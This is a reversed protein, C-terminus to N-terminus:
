FARAVFIVVPYSLKNKKRGRQFPWLFNRSMRTANMCIIHDILSGCSLVIYTLLLVMIGIFITFMACHNMSNNNRPEALVCTRRTCVSMRVVITGVGWHTLLSTSLRCYHTVLVYGVLLVSFDYSICIRVFGNTTRAKTAFAKHITWLTFQVSKFVSSM